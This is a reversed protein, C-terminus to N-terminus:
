DRTKRSDNQLVKADKITARFTKVAETVAEHERAEKLKVQYLDRSSMKKEEAGGEFEVKIQDKGFVEKLLKTGDESALRKGAFDQKVHAVVRNEAVEISILSKIVPTWAPRHDRLFNELTRTPDKGPTAASITPASRTTKVAPEPTREPASARPAVAETARPVPNPNTQVASAVALAPRQICLKVVTSEVLFAANSSSTMSAQAKLCLDLARVVEDESMNERALTLAKHMDPDDGLLKKTWTFYHLDRFFYVLRGLLVKPDIGQNLMESLEELALGAEHHAVKALLSFFRTRDVLGLAKELTEVKIEEGCLAIAQDLLSQADRLCGESETIITRIAAEDIKVKENKCIDKLNTSLIDAPIKKFDFRQCRSQITAPVKHIETTAFVFLVHPPPEELTKLLANFAATSLMHVEDIIYVRYRGITASYGVGERLERINDVGTNSAADIEIVDMSNGADMAVCADCSNCPEGDGAPNLCRVSKALLRAASTKGVGRPGTFLYAHAQRNAVIANKLTQSVHEQGVLDEFRQPRYKRAIVVYSM